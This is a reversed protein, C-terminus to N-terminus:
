LGMPGPEFEIRLSQGVRPVPVSELRGHRWAMFCAESHDLDREFQLRARTFLGGSVADAEVELEGLKVVQGVQLPHHSPDRLLLEFLNNRRPSGLVELEVTDSTTRSVRHPQPAMSLVRWREAGAKEPAHFLIASSAYLTLTPDSGNILYISGRKACAGVDAELALRKQTDASKAFNAIMGLRALPSMGLQFLAVAGFALWWRKRGSPEGRPRHARGWLGWLINGAVAAAGFLPLPLVRGSVPAGVLAGLSVLSALSLWTLARRARPSLQASLSRLLLGAGVIACLGISALVIQAPRGGVVTAVSPVGVLLEAALAPAGWFVAALYDLPAAFPSIYFKGARTGYGLAVYLALYGLGLCVPLVSGWLGRRLGRTGVEYGTILVVTILGSESALLSAVLAVIGIALGPKFRDERFRVWAWLAMVGFTAAVLTHRAALWSVPIAHVESLAFIIASLLAAPAAFWRLYLRAVMAALVVMWLLSQVHALLPSQGFLVHDLALTASSLPRLFRLMLGPDTFWPLLGQKMLAPAPLDPPTFDYLGFWGGAYGPARGELMLRHTLDDNTFGVLLSPASALLAVFAPWLWNRPSAASSVPKINLTHSLPLM